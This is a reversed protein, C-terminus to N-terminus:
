KRDHSGDTVWIATNNTVADGLWNLDTAETASKDIGEWMWTGVWSKLFDWFEQPQSPGATMLSGVQGLIIQGSQQPTISTPPGAPVDEDDKWTFRYGKEARTRRQDGSPIYFMVGEPHREQIQDNEEDYYLKTIRHSPHVWPGLPTPLKEGTM